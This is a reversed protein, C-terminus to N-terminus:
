QLHAFVTFEPTTDTNQEKLLDVLREFGKDIHRRRTRITCNPNREFSVPKVLRIHISVITNGEPVSSEVETFLDDLSPCGAMSIYEPDDTNGDWSIGLVTRKLIPSQAGDPTPTAVNQRANMPLAPAETTPAHQMGISPAGTTAQSSTNEVPAEGEPSQTAIKPLGSPWKQDISAHEREPNFAHTARQVEPGTLDIVDDSPQRLGREPAASATAGSEMSKSTANGLEHEGLALGTYEELANEVKIPPINTWNKVGITIREAASKNTGVDYANNTGSGSPGADQAKSAQTELLEGSAVNGFRSREDTPHAGGNFPATQDTPVSNRDPAPVLKEHTLMFMKARITKVKM